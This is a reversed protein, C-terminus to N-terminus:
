AKPSRIHGLDGAFQIKPLILPIKLPLCPPYIFSLLTVKKSKAGISLSINGTFSSIQGLVFMLIPYSPILYLYLCGDEWIKRCFDGTFDSCLSYAPSKGSEFLLIYQTLTHTNKFFPGASSVRPVIHISLLLIIKMLLRSSLTCQPNLAIHMPVQPFYSYNSLFFM